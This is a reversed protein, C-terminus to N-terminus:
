ATRRRRSSGVVGGGSRTAEQATGGGEAEEEEGADVKDEGSPHLSSRVSGAVERMPRRELLPDPSSAASDSARWM